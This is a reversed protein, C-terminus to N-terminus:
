TFTTKEFHCRVSEIPLLYDKSLELFSAEIIKLYRRSREM